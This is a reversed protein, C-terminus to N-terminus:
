EAVTAAVEQMGSLLEAVADHHTGPVTCLEPLNARVLHEAFPPPVSNGCRAVQAAKSYKKGNVKFNIKYNTPFGQALYLEHPELMRMGIDVIQYEDGFITVLGFRDKTTVTHLPEEVAQADGTGFYKVLLARVEGMHLGGATVTHMPEDVPQGTNNNRLKILHSTVLSFRPQTDLTFLPDDLKQGRAERGTTEGHYKQLFTAVLQAKPKGTVTYTPSDLAHGVSQGYVQAVFPTVLGWGNKATITQMPEDVEQGRFADGAHNVKIIFPRPNGVVFKMIGRAIRAKTNEALERKGHKEREFISPCPLTWDIIEAATRWPKLAGSKVEDSDPRGHTPTPWVVERGDCRAVFFLRKRITPAGYDCARLVQWECVYGLGTELKEFPFDDGLVDRIEEWAPHEPALGTSLAAVFALFTEGRREKIPQGGDNIPGWDKFEEVNELLIVRPRTLGAWEVANWALGRISTEVPTGGRAKSFHNCAPSAWLLDVPDGNTAEIPDVDWVSECYHKTDPHNEQHMAIADPDHNIAIDVNRGIALEIGHSAGGGGAFLDVVLGRELKTGVIM